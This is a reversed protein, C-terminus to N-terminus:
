NSIRMSSVYRPVFLTQRDGVIYVQQIFLVHSVTLISPLYREIFTMQRDYIIEISYM